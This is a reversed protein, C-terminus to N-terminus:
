RSKWDYGIQQTKLTVKSGSLTLGCDLNALILDWGHPKGDRDSARAPYRFRSRIPLAVGACNPGWFSLIVGKSAGIERCSTACHHFHQCCGNTAGAVQTPSQRLQVPSLRNRQCGGSVRWCQPATCRCPSTPHDFHQAHRLGIQPGRATGCSLNAHKPFTRGAKM